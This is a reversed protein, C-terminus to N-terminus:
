VVSKRDEERVPRGGTKKERDSNNNNNPKKGSRPEEDSGSEDSAVVDDVAPDLLEFAVFPAVERDVDADERPDDFAATGDFRAAARM